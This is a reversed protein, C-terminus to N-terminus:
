HMLVLGRPHNPNATLVTSGNATASNVNVGDSFNSAIRVRAFTNKAPVVPLSVGTSEQQLIMGDLLVGGAASTLVLSLVQTDGVVVNPLDFRLDKRTSDLGGVAWIHYTGVPLSYYGTSGSINSVFAQSVAALDPSPASPSYTDNCTVTTSPVCQGAIYIDLTGADASLDIIRLMGGSGVAPALQNEILQTVHVSNDSNYALLTYYTNASFGLNTSFLPVSNSGHTLLELTESGSTITSYTSANGYTVGSALVTNINTANSTNTANGVALVMDLSNNTANVLRVLNTNNDNNNGHCGQLMVVTFLLPLLIALQKM